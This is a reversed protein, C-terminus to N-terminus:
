FSLELTMEEPFFKRVVRNRTYMNHTSEMISLWHKGIHYKVPVTDYYEIPTRTTM